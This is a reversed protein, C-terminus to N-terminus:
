LKQEGIEGYYGSPKAWGKGLERQKGNGKGEAMEIGRNVHDSNRVMLELHLFQQGHKNEGLHFPSRHYGDIAQQLDLVTYGEALRAKIARSEKGDARPKPHARPHYRRYHEFVDAVDQSLSRTQGPDPPKAQAVPLSGDPKLGVFSQTEGSPPSPSPSSGSVSASSPSPSPSTNAIRERDTPDDTRVDTSGDNSRGNLPRENETRERRVEGSRRGAQAAAIRRAQARELEESLRAQVIHGDELGFLHGIVMWVRDWDARDCGVVRALRAHDLPLRGGRTWM